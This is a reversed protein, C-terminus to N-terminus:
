GWVSAEPLMECLKRYLSPYYNKLWVMGGKRSHAGPLWWSKRVRDPSEVLRVCRYVHLPEIGRSFLYAYVDLGRWTALPTCIPEGSRKVYYEGHTCFNMKRGYSEDRRLGLYVGPKGRESAYREILGYFAQRSFEAARGHFDESVDLEKAHERIYDQLSFSPRLIDIRANWKEALHRLYEEEGPFDMDDKESMCRAPVGCLVTVLHALVTSDKGASWAVYASSHGSAMREIVARARDVSKRHMLSRSWALCTREWMAWIRRDEDTLIPEIM